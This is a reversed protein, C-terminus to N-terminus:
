LNFCFEFNEEYSLEYRFKSCLTRQLEKLQPSIYDYAQNKLDSVSYSGWDKEVCFEQVDVFIEYSGSEPLGNEQNFTFLACATQLKDQVQFSPPDISGIIICPWGGFTIFGGDGDSRADNNLCWGSGVERSLEGTFQNRRENENKDIQYAWNLNIALVIALGIALSKKQRQKDQEVRVRTARADETNTDIWSSILAIEGVLSESLYYALILLLGIIGFAYFGEVFDFQWNAWLVIWSLSVLVAVCNYTFRKQNKQREFNKEVKARIQEFMELPENPTLTSLKIPKSFLNEIYMKDYWRGAIYALFGLFIIIKFINLVM